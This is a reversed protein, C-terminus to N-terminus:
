LILFETRRNNKRGSDTDNTDIPSTDGFGHATLRSANIGNQVLFQLVAAARNESLTQNKAQSGTNDTHGNLQIKMNPNEQLMDRLRMLEDRSEPKLNASGTDFFVNKLIMPKTKVTQPQNNAAIVPKDEIPQLDIKLSFPKDVSNNETLNFNDSYFAYKKEAVALSYNIGVPLCLIFVGKENTKARVVEKGTELNKLIAVVGVLKKNSVADRVTAQVYTVPKPRLNQPLDFSYLDLKGRSDPFEAAYIANKGDFTVILGSEVKETNIPTGLNQPKGWKGDPQLRSVFLDLDGFGPQGNSSFYLTQGDPHLFPTVEDYATNLESIAEPESWKGDDGRRSMFLNKSANKEVKADKRNTSFLLLKGNSSLSPQSEWTKANIPAGIYEPTTWAGNKYESILLDCSGAGDKRNCATYILTQGDASLTQAGENDDTNIPKGLDSAKQWNNASDKKSIYFDEQLGVRRTFLLNKGDINISPSYEPASSNIGDGMNKAAFPVPHAYGEARFRTHLAWLKALEIRELTTEPLKINKAQAIELAAYREFFRASALYKKDRECYKGLYYLAKIMYLSDMKVAKEMETRARDYDNTAYFADGLLMQADIFQPTEKLANTLYEIAKKPKEDSLASRAKEYKELSSKPLEKDKYTLYNKQALLNTQGLALIILTILINSIIQHKIEVSIQFLQKIQM